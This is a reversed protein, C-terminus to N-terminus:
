LTIDLSFQEDSNCSLRGSCLPIYVGIVFAIIFLIICREQYAVAQCAFYYKGNAVEGSERYNYQIGKLQLVM